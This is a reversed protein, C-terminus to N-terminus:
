KGCQTGGEGSSDGKESTISECTHDTLIGMHMERLVGFRGIGPPRVAARACRFFREPARYGSNKHIDLATKIM